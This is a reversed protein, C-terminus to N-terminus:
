SNPWAAVAAAKPSSWDSDQCPRLGYTGYANAAGYDNYYCGIEVGATAMATFLQTVIAGMRPDSSAALYAPGYPHIGPILEPGCEYSAVSIPRGFTQAWQGATAVLDGMWHTLTGAIFTSLDQLVQDATTAATYSGQNQSWAYCNASFADVKTYGIAQLQRCLLTFPWGGAGPGTGYNCALVRRYRRDDPWVSDIAAFMRRHEAAKGYILQSSKWGAAVGLNFCFRTGSYEPSWNWEENGHEFWCILSPDLKDRVLAAAGRYYDDAGGHPLCLWMDRHLMNCVAVCDELCVGSATLYPYGTAPDTAPTGDPNLIPAGWSAQSCYEPTKRDQWRLVGNVPYSNNIVHWDKFRIPGPFHAFGALWTADFAPQAHGEPVLRIDRIPNTPDNATITVQTGASTPVIKLLGSQPTPNAILSADRGFALTGGGQWTARYLGGRYHGGTGSAAFTYAPQGVTPAPYGQATLPAPRGDRLRWVGSGTGCGKMLDTFASAASLYSTPAINIGLKM